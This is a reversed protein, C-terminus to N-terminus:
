VLNGEFSYRDLGLLYNTIFLYKIKPREEKNFVVKMYSKHEYEKVYHKGLHDRYLQYQDEHIKLLYKGKIKSLMAALTKADAVTFAYRYYTERNGGGRGVTVYPPDLYFVTENRDYKEILRRFDLNEILVDSFRKAVEALGNVINRKVEVTHNKEFSVGFSSSNANTSYMHVYYIIIAKSLDDLNSKNMLERFYNFLSRSHPLLVLTKILNDKKERVIRFFAVLYDDIDNYVVVKFINRPAYMSIVGSGGFVEVLYKCRSQILINILIDKIFYDGGPYRFSKYDRDRDSRYMDIIQKAIYDRLELVWDM